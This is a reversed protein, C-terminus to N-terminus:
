LVLNLPKTTPQIRSIQEQFRQMPAHGNGPAAIELTALRQISELATPPQVNSRGLVAASRHLIFEGHWPLQRNCKM